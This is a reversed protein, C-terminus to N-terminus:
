WGGFRRQLSMVSSVYRQTDPLMGRRSVSSSGQYYSAVAQSVSVSHRLLYNLYLMGAKLSDGPSFPDLPGPSLQSSIFNWTGPMIQMVGHANTSSVAANNFGSEQYAVAQGLSPPVGNQAAAAAVQGATFRTAVPAPYGPASLPAATSTATPMEAAAAGPLVIRQGAILIASASLGNARALAAESLGDQAAISWLSEGPAVVHGGAATAAPGAALSSTTTVSASGATAQDDVDADGDGVAATTTAATTPTATTRVAMTSAAPLATSAPAGAGAPIYLDQGAQLLAGSSLGNATALAAVSLGDQRAVSALSEGPAVVHVPAGSAAAPLLASAVGGLLASATTATILARGRSM